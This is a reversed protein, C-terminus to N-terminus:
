SSVPRFPNRAPRCPHQGSSGHSRLTCLGVAEGEGSAEGMLMHIEHPKTIGEADAKQLAARLGADSVNGTAAMKLARIMIGAVKNGAFQHLSKAIGVAGYAIPATPM